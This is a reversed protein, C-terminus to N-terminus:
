LDADVMIKVLEKFSTKPFWGLEEKAKSYDGILSEVESPRFYKKDIKVLIKDNSNNYGVEDLGKGRWKINIGVYEFALEIFEKVSHQNNTAIVYDDPKNQQLMLWMSTIYDKAYGWDRKAYINGVTLYEQEGKLIKGIAITIKRTIFTEGRRPSEHNFLIGNCAFLNYSERYNRTIWYAYM